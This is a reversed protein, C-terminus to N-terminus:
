FPLDDQDHDIHEVVVDEYDFGEQYAEYRCSLCYREAGRHGHNDFAEGCDACYSIRESDEGFSYTLTDDPTEIANANHICLACATTPLSCAHPYQCHVSM